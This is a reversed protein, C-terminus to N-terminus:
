EKLLNRTLSGGGCDCKTRWGCIKNREMTPIDVKNNNNM